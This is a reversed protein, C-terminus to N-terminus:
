NIILFNVILYCIGILAIWIFIYLLTNKIKGMQKEDDPKTLLQVTQIIIMILIVFALLWIAWNIVQYFLPISREAMVSTWIQWLNSVDKLVDAKKWYVAEVIQKSGIIVLMWLINRWILTWAKKKTDDDKAFIFTFVRSVLIVFLVWLSLYIAIKLFPFVLKDYIEQAINWWLIDTIKTNDWQNFIWEYITTWIYKASMILIIWLAWYLIFRTWDAKAKEDSSFLLKYFWLIAILIGLVVILPVLVNMVKEFVFNKIWETWKTSEAAEINNKISEISKQMASDFRSNDVTEQVAATSGWWGWWGGWGGWLEWDSEDAQMVAFAASSVFFSLTSLIAILLFKKM